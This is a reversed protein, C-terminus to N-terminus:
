RQGAKETYHGNVCQFTWVESGDHKIADMTRRILYAREDCQPCHIPGIHNTLTVKPQHDM